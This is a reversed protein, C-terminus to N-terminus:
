RKGDWRLASTAQMIFEILEVYSVDAIKVGNLILEREVTKGDPGISVRVRLKDSM